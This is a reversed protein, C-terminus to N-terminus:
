DLELRDLIKAATEEKAQMIERNPVTEHDYGLLHYVGHIVLEQVERKPSNNFDAAQSEAQPYSIIIDGLYRAPQAEPPLKFNPDSEEEGEEDEETEESEAQYQTLAQWNPEEESAFSLVDTTKDIGRYQRNLERVEEDDSIAISLEIEEGSINEAQLAAEAARKLDVEALLSSYEDAIDCFVLYNNSM